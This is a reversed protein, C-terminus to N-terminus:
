DHKGSLKFRYLDELSVENLELSAMPGDMEQLWNIIESIGSAASKEFLIWLSNGEQFHAVSQEELFHKLKPLLATQRIKSIDLLTKRFERIKRISSEYILRGEKLFGVRTAIKDAESLIHSSIIFTRKETHNLQLILERLNIIHDPDLGRNPEDLFVLDPSHLMSLAIGLRQKMGTSLQKYRIERKEELEVLKLVRQVERTPVDYYRAFINLNEEVTLMHYFAPDEILVGLRQMLRTRETANWEKEFYRILGTEPKYMGLLTKFLSSKGSGNPGILFYIDQKEVTMNVSRLLQHSGYSFNM